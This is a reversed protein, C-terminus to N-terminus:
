RDLVARLAQVLDEARFPKTVLPVGPRTVLAVREGFLQDGTMFIARRSLAPDRRAIEDLLEVGTVLPMRLDVLLADYEAQELRSLADAGSKATDVAFGEIQLLDTLLKLVDSEDDVVLIRRARRAQDALEGSARPSGGAADTKM